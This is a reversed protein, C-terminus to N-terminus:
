VAQTEKCAEPSDDEAGFVSVPPTILPPRRVDSSAGVAAVDWRNQVTSFQVPSGRSYPRRFFGNIKFLVFNHRGHRRSLPIQVTLAGPRNQAPITKDLYFSIGM